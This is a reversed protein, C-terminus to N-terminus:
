ANNNKNIWVSFILTKWLTFGFNGKGQKHLNFLKMIHNNNIFTSVHATSIQDIFYQSLTTRLWFSYPVSFGTKKGYLIKNPVIGELSKKLLYKKEGNKVKLNSPIALIFETLEKDLFPVRVEISNSMTSKDVKEFFTDKLIIQTDSYFLKQIDDFDQPIESYIEKYRLFPDYNSLINSYENSLIDLPSFYKSEMTLLLANRTPKDEESIADIFRQLRLLKTSKTDIKKILHPLFSLIRWIKENQLTFYRSYGGFFEDGGDGQLIVKIDGRISKSLLYLPINAADAFPEDHADVLNEIVDILNEGNIHIEHHETQYLKAVESAIKLENPGQNYDFGVSYTKIKGSYNKSAFATIASSDIGGSLFIGVPVDSLLHRKVSAELKLRIESIADTELIKQKKISYIDFYKKITMGSSSVVMYTGPTLEKIDSYFTNDGLPNGFWLYESLAQFSLNDSFKPHLKISKIESSFIFNVKTNYYYLPKIGFQDRALTIEKKVCDYIAIAFMGNFMNFCTHGFLKFSYLIVETDSNTQFVVGKEVLQKRIEKYNYIEGNFVLSFRNQDCVLPQNAFDSLDIISLRRHGLAVNKYIKFSGYDPGRHSLRDTLKYILEPDIITNDYNYIGTIGCMM